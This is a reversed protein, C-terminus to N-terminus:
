RMRERQVTKGTVERILALLDDSVGSPVSDKSHKRRAGVIAAYYIEGGPNVSVSVLRGPSRYWELSM